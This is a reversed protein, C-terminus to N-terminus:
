FRETSTKPMTVDPLQTTPKMTYRTNIDTEKREKILSLRTKDKEDLYWDNTLTCYFYKKEDKNEYTIIGEKDQTISKVLDDYNVRYKKLLKIPKDKQEQVNGGSQYNSNNRKYM